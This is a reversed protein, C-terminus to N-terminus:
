FLFHYIEATTKVKELLKGERYAGKMQSHSSQPLRNGATFSRPACRFPWEWSEKSHAYAPLHQVDAGLNMARYQARYTTLMYGQCGTFEGLVVLFGLVAAHWQLWSGRESEPGIM